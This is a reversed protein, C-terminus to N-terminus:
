DITISDIANSPPNVPETKNLEITSTNGDENIKEIKYVRKAMDNSNKSWSFLREWFGKNGKIRRARGSGMAPIKSADFSEKTTGRLGRTETGSGWITWGSKIDFWSNNESKKEGIALAGTTVDGDNLGM